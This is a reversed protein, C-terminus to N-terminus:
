QIYIMHADVLWPCIGLDITTLEAVDRYIRTWFTMKNYITFRNDKEIEIASGSIVSYGERQWPSSFTTSCSIICVSCKPLSVVVASDGNITM